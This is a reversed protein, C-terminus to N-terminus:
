GGFAQAYYDPNNTRFQNLAESYTISKEAALKKVEADLTAKSIEAGSAGHGVQTLPIASNSPRESFMQWFEPQLEKLQWAKNAVAEEAPTIRGDSLLASVASQMEVARKEAEIAELRENLKNNQERLSQVESLLTSQTLQENMAYSKKDDEKETMQEDDTMKESQPEDKEELEIEVEKEDSIMKSEADAQMEAIKAELERVMEDKAVLMSRLDDIPMSDLNDIM